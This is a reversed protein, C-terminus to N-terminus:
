EYMGGQWNAVLITDKGRKYQTIKGTKLAGDIVDQVRTKNNMAGVYQLIYKIHKRQIQSFKIVINILENISKKLTM